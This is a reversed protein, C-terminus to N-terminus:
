SKSTIEFTPANFLFVDKVECSQKKKGEYGEKYSHCTKIWENISLCLKKKSKGSPGSM